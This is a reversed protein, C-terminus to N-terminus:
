RWREKRDVEGAEEFSTFFALRGREPKMPFPDSMKLVSSSGATSKRGTGSGIWSPTAGSIAAPRARKRGSDARSRPRRRSGAHDTGPPWLVAKGAQRARRCLIDQITNNLVHGLHLIGTVNPPPIVILYGDGDASEDGRFCGSEEWHRYWKSEVTGPDYTKSPESM